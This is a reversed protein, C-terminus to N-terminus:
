PRKDYLNYMIGIGLVWSASNQPVTLTNLSAYGSFRGSAKYSIRFNFCAGTYRYTYDKLYGKLVENDTQYKGKFTYAYISIGTYLNLSHRRFIKSGFSLVGNTYRRTYKYNGNEPWQYEKNSRNFNTELSVYLPLNVPSYIYGAQLCHMRHEVRSRSIGLYFNGSLPALPGSAMLKVQCTLILTWIMWRIMM